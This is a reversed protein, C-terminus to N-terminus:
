RMLESPEKRATRVAPLFTAIFSVGIGVAMVIVVTVFDIQPYIIGKVTVGSPMGEELAAVKVGVRSFFLIIASGFSGGLVAGIIGLITGELALMRFIENNEVGVAKMVGIEKKREFVVMLMTNAVGVGALVAFILVVISKVVPILSSITGNMGIEEWSKIKYEKQNKNIRAKFEKSKEPKDLFVMYENVMGAMDLLEQADTLSIYFSQNLKRNDLRYFGVITFNYATMSNDPTRSLVTIEDGIKLNLYKEIKEGVIIERKNKFDLYRGEYMYKSLGTISEEKETIGYGLAEKQVDEKVFLFGGFKIKGFSKKVGTQTEIINEIKETEISSDLSMTKEKLDYDKATIRVDGSVKTGEELLNKSIGNFWSMGLITATIGFFVMTITLISRKPNRTISRSAIKFIEM